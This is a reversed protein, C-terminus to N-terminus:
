NNFYGRTVSTTMRALRTGRSQTLGHNKDKKRQLYVFLTIVFSERLEGRWCLKQLPMGTMRVGVLNTVDNLSLRIQYKVMKTHRRFHRADIEGSQAAM